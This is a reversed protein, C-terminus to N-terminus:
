HNGCASEVQTVSIIKGHLHHLILFYKESFQQIHHMILFALACKYALAIAALIITVCIPGQAASKNSKLHPAVCFFDLLQRNM